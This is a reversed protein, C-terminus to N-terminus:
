LKRGNVDPSLAEAKIHIDKLNNLFSISNAIEEAEAETLKQSEDPPTIELYYGVIQPSKFKVELEGAEVNVSVSEFSDSSSSVSSTNFCFFGGGSSSISNAFDKIRKTKSFEFNMKISVNKVILLAVPYCPLLVSQLKTQIDENNLIEDTMVAKDLMFGRSGARFYDVSKRLITPDMWNRRINVKKALLGIQINSDQSM